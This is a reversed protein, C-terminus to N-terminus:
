ALDEVGDRTSLYQTYPIPPTAEYGGVHVILAIAAISQSRESSRM